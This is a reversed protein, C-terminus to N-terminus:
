GMATEQTLLLQSRDADIQVSFAREILDTDGSAGVRVRLSARGVDGATPLLSVQLEGRLDTKDDVLEREKGDARILTVRMPVDPLATGASPLSLRRVVGEVVFRDNGIM